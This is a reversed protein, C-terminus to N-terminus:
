KVVNIKSIGYYKFANIASEDIADGPMLIPVAPPCSANCIALVRGKANEVSIEENLGLMAERISIVRTPVSLMPANAKIPAKKEIQLLADKIRVIDDNDPSLMLVVYDLDSFECEIGYNKRIIDAFGVGTYGNQKVDLTFKLREDGVFCYGYEVLEAKIKDARELYLNLRKAYGDEIYRNVLDLSQLILYSPSTSGFMALANKANNKFVQDAKKNIHLYAGGTLAPLTKHASDCCMAAGLDMPHNSKDLFKLYAGHANDVLLPVNYKDCVKSLGGIDCMNGLYDPSTIYVASPAKDVSKLVKELNEPTIVCSLYSSDTTQYLWMVDLDLLAAVSLFVKHVNRAALVLPKEGKARAGLTALYLMARICHSSGETSYFTDAGFLAGANEESEKIIGDAEYLSDAGKIETIDMHEIGLLSNGKHGPMHLRSTNSEIYGKVFDYIPTKM